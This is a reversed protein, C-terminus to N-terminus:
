VGAPEQGEREEEGKGLYTFPFKSLLTAGNNSEALLIGQGYLEILYLTTRPTLTRKDVLKINSAAAASELRAQGVKKLLWVAFLLAVVFLGLTTMMNIFESLLDREELAAKPLLEDAGLQPGESIGNREEAALPAFLLLPILLLHVM